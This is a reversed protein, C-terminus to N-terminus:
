SSKKSPEGPKRPKILETKYLGHITEALANISRYIYSTMSGARTTREPSRRRHTPHCCNISRAPLSASSAASIERKSLGEGQPVSTVNGVSHGARV